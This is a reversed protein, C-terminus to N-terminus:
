WPKSLRAPSQAGALSGCLPSSTPKNNPLYGIGAQLRLLNRIDAQSKFMLIQWFLIFFLADPM